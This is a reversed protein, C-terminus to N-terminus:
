PIIIKKLFRMLNTIMVGLVVLPLDSFPKELFMWNIKWATQMTWKQTPRLMSQRMFIGFVQGSSQNM